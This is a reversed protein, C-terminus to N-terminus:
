AGAYTVDDFWVTGTDFASELCIELTVAGLPPVGVVSLEQGGTTGPLVPASAMQGLYQGGAGFWALVLQSLGTANQGAAWVTAAEPQGPIAAADVPTVEVGPFETLSGGTDSIRLSSTGSHATTTDAAFTGATPDVVQWDVPLGDSSQEFGNNFSPDVQGASFFRAIDAAAPKATGDTRYLGFGYDTANLQAAPPATGPAVDDLTWVAAPPLGLQVTALEVTRLYLSQEAELAAQTGLTLPLGDSGPASTSYGTEGVFLPLPAAAQAAASLTSRAFAAPGYYHLDYFDPQVSGLAQRLATIGDPGETSSVSLTVPTGPDISQVYPLLQEAWSTAAADNPDIENKLEIFRIEPSSTFPSLLQSVWSESGAVDSYSAWWDFLTLQVDLGDGAALKVFAALEKAMKKSVTPYGFTWPDIVARVTNAGLQKVRRLDAAVVTPSWDTWMNTWSADTPFYSMLKTQQLLNALNIPAAPQQRRGAKAAPAPSAVAVGALVIAVSLVATRVPSRARAVPRARM